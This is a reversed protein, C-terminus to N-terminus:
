APFIRSLLPTPTSKAGHVPDPLLNGPGRQYQHPAGLEAPPPRFSLRGKEPSNRSCTAWAGPRTIRVPKTGWSFM